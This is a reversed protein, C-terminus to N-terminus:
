VGFIFDTSSYESNPDPNTRSLQVFSYAHLAAGVLVLARGVNRMRLGPRIIKQDIEFNTKPHHYYISRFVDAKASFNNQAHTSISGFVILSTTVIKFTLRIFNIKIM